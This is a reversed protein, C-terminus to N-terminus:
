RDSETFAGFNTEKLFQEISGRRAALQDHLPCPNDNPCYGDGFPCPLAEDVPDFHSVIDFFTITEPQRALRYGVKPGPAGSVYGAQSLMTLVKAVLSQSLGRAAAIEASNARADEDAFQGALYSMAAIANQAMKSYGFASM